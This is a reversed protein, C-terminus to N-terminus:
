KLFAIAAARCIAVTPTHGWVCVEINKGQLAVCWVNPGGQESEGDEDYGIQLTDTKKSLREVVLWAASIQRSYAPVYKLAKYWSPDKPDIISSRQEPDIVSLKGEITRHVEWKMVTLAVLADLEPGENLELIAERSLEALIM